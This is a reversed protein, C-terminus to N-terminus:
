SVRLLEQLEEIAKSLSESDALKVRENEYEVLGLRELKKVYLKATKLSIKFHLALDRIEVEQSKVYRLVDLERPTLIM